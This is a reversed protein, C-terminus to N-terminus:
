LLQTHVDSVVGIGFFTVVIGAAAALALWSARRGAWGLTFRLHLYLAYILWTVLSWTEIPDWGWYRGWLGHAWIAGSALMVAHCVFGFAILQATLEDGVAPAGEAPAGRTAWLHRAALASAVLYSGFALWAFLVHVALWTSRYPPELPGLTAPAIVGNGLILLTAALVVPFAREAPRYRWATVGGLLPLFWAGLLSNEYAGMVPAHGSAIWRSLIAASHAVFGAGALLRGARAARAASFALGSSWAAFGLAYCAIAAWLAVAELQTM